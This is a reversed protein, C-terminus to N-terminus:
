VRRSISDLREIEYPREPLSAADDAPGTHELREFTHELDVEFQVSSTSEATPGVSDSREQSERRARKIKDSVRTRMTGSSVEESTASLGPINAPLRFVFKSSMSPSKVRKAAATETYFEMRARVSDQRAVPSRASPAKSLAGKKKARGEEAQAEHQELEKEVDRRKQTSEEIRKMMEEMNRREYRVILKQILLLLLVLIFLPLVIEVIVRVVGLGSRMEACAPKPVAGECMPYLHNLGDLDDQQLCVFDMRQTFTRMISPFQESTQEVYEPSMPSGCTSANMPVLSKMNRYGPTDPHDLGLAHGTEHVILAEFDYCSVCSRARSPPPLSTVRQLTARARAAAAAAACPEVIEFFFVYPFIIWFFGFLGRAVTIAKITAYTARWYIGLYYRNRHSLRHMAAKKRAEKEKQKTKTKEARAKEAKWDSEEQLETTNRGEPQEGSAVALARAAKATEADVGGGGASATSGRGRPTLSLRRIDRRIDRMVRTVKFSPAGQVAKKGIAFSHSPPPLGPDKALWEDDPAREAEEEDLRSRVSSKSHKGLHIERCIVAEVDPTFELHVKLGQNHFNYKRRKCEAILLRREVTHMENLFRWVLVGLIVLTALVIACWTLVRM